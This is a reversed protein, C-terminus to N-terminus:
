WGQEKLTRSFNNDTDERSTTPTLILPITCPTIEITINQYMALVKTFAV